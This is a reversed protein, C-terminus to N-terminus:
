FSFKDGTAVLGSVNTGDTGAGIAPYGFAAMTILTAPLMLGPPVITVVLHVIGVVTAMGVMIVMGVAVM